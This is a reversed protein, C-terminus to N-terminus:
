NLRHSIKNTIIQIMMLAMNQIVTAQMTSYVCDCKWLLFLWYFTEDRNNGGLLFDRVEVPLLKEAIFDGM